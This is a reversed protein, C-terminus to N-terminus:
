EYSVRPDAVAYLIDVLLYSILTLFSVVLTESLVLEPDKQFVADVVLKGMGDIGFITEVIISGGILAPLIEAAYTILPLLSNRFVHHYLVDKARIGKARATRAYDATINDLVSGRCLKTLVAFQTYVLCFVPMVLHWASDLLWGRQWVGGAFRPLFAMQDATLEAANGSSFTHLGNSPFWHLYKDNALYGVLLVGMLIQPISWLVILTTGMSVDLMKGRHKASVIGMWISLIYVIPLALGNLLLTVPLADSILQGVPQRRVFSEGFDPEKFGFYWSHPYGEGAKKVGVPSVKNLWRLYQRYLPKDLGYRENLYAEVAKREEPRMTGEQALLAGGIGGPSLAMVLFTVVTMGILTPFLLMLRRLIYSAM